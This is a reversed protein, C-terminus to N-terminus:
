ASKLFLTKFARSASLLEQYLGSFSELTIKPDGVRAALERENIILEEPAIRKYLM